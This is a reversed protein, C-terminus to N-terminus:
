AEKNMLWLWVLLLFYFIGRMSSMSYCFGHWVGSNTIITIDKSICLAQSSKEIEIRSFNPYNAVTM